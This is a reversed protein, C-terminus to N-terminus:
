DRVQARCRLQHGDDSCSSRGGHYAHGPADALPDYNLMVPGPLSNGLGGAGRSKLFFTGSTSGTVGSLAARKRSPSCHLLSQGIHLLVPSAERKKWGVSFSSSRASKRCRWPKRRATTVPPSGVIWGPKQVTTSRSSAWPKVQSM